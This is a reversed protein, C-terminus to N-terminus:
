RFNNYVGVSGDIFVNAVRDHRKPIRRRRILVMREISTMRRQQTLFPQAFQVPLPLQLFFRCKGRPDAQVRRLDDDPINPRVLLDVIGEHAVSYVQSRAQLSCVLDVFCPDEGTFGDVFLNALPKEEARDVDDRYFALLLADFNVLEDPLHGTVAAEQRRLLLDIQALSEGLPELEVVLLTPALRHLM